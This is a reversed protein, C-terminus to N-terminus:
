LTLHPEEAPAEFAISSEAEPLSRGGSGWRSSQGQVEVPPEAGLGGIYARAGKSAM